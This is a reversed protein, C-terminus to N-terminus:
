KFFHGLAPMLLMANAFPAALLALGPLVLGSGGRPRRISWVAGIVAMLIGVAAWFWGLQLAWVSYLPVQASCCYRVGAQLWVRRSRIAAAV